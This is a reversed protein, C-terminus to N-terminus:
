RQPARGHHVRRSQASTSTGAQTTRASPKPSRAPVLTPKRQGIKLDHLVIAANAHFTTTTADDLFLCLCLWPSRALSLPPNERGLRLNKTTSSLSKLPLMPASLPQQPVTSFLLCLCPIKRLLGPRVRLPINSSTSSSKVCATAPLHRHLRHTRHLQRVTLASSYVGASAAAKFNAM